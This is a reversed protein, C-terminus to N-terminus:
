KCANLERGFKPKVTGCLGNACVHCTDDDRDTFRGSVHDLGSSPSRPPTQGPAPQVHGSLEVGDFEAIHDHRAERRVVRSQACILRLVVDVALAENISCILAHSSM